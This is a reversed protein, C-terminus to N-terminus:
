PGVSMAALGHNRVRFSGTMEHARAFRESAETPRGRRLAYIGVAENAAHGGAALFRRAAEERRALPADEAHLALWGWYAQEDERAMGDTLELRHIANWRALYLARVVRKPARVEGGVTVGYRELMRPFSGLRAEEEDQELEGAMAPALAQMAEARLAHLAETGHASRVSRAKQLLTQGRAQFTEATEGEGVEARGQELFLARLEAVDPADPVSDALREDEARAADDVDPVVLVPLSRPFVPRPFTWAVGAGVALFVLLGLRMGSPTMRRRPEDKVSEASM